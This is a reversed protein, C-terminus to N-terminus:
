RKIEALGRRAAAVLDGPADPQALLKRYAIEAADPQKLAAFSGGAGILGRRGAASTPAMYAATMYYEAAALHAGEAQYTEGVAVAAEAALAADSGHLLPEFAARAEKWRKDALLARAQSVRATTTWQLNGGGNAARSFAEVAGARDGVAERARGLALWSQGSAASPPAGSLAQELERRAEATHGTELLAEGWALRSTEVFPSKPFRQRLEGYAQHVVPWAPVAAAARGIRELADDATEHSPFDTALRRAAALAAPWDKAEVAMGVLAYLLVGAGPPRPQWRLTAEASRKFEDRAGQQFAAVAVGYEAVGAVEATGSDRAAGLERAADDWRKQELAAVGLGLSALAGVGEQRASAFARAAEAPARSGLLAVGLATYARGLLPPFPVRRTWDELMRRALPMQGEHLLLIARNLRAFDSRPHTPYGAIVRDLLDRAADPASADLALEAALVLAEPAQPHGPFAEAFEGFQRRAEDHRNQRMATWALALRVAPALAQASAEGLLRRYSAEATKYDGAHYAAEAYMVLAPALTESPAGAAVLPALDRQAQAFERMEFNTQALRL